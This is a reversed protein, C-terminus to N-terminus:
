KVDKPYLAYDFKWIEDTCALESFLIANRTTESNM